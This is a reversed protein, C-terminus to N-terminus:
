LLQFTVVVSKFMKKWLFVKKSKKPLVEKYSDGCTHMKLGRQELYSLSMLDMLFRSELFQTACEM